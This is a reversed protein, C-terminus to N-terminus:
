LKLISHYIIESQLKSIADTTLDPKIMNYLTWTYNPSITKYHLISAFTAHKSSSNIIYYLNPFDYVLNELIMYLVNSVM